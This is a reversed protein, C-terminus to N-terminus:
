FQFYYFPEIVTGIIRFSTLLIVIALAQALAPLNVFTSEARLKWREPLYHTLIALAFAVWALVPLSELDVAPMRLVSLMEFFTAMEPARFVSSAMTGLTFVLLVKFPRLWRTPPRQEKQHHRYCREAVLFVGHSLGWVVFTWAAGHWLGVLAM